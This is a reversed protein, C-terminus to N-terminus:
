YNGPSTSNNPKVVQKVTRETSAVQVVKSATPSTLQGPEKMLTETPWARWQPQVTQAPGAVVVLQANYPSVSQVSALLTKPAGDKGAMEAPFRAPNAVLMEDGKRIGNLAGANIQIQQGAVATVVPVIPQCNLLQTTQDRWENIQNQLLEMSTSSLRAASWQPREIEMVLRVREEMKAQQGETGKIQFDLNLALGNTQAGIATEFNSLPVAETTIKLVGAWPLKSPRNGVLAREYATMQNAMSAPPLNNVAVWTQAKGQPATNVTWQSQVLPLLAQLVMSNTGRPIELDLNVLHNMQSSLQPQCTPAAEATEKFSAAQKLKALMGKLGTSNPDKEQVPLPTHLRAKPYGNEDRGYSLVQVGRVEMGNKFSSSERLSGQADIWSTTLVKTPTKLSAEVLSHRIADLREQPTLPADAGQALSATAFGAWIGLCVLSAHLKSSGARM